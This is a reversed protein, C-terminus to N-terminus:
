GLLGAPGRSRETLGGRSRTSGGGRSIRRRLYSRPSFARPWLHAARSPHSPETTGDAVAAAATAHRVDRSCTKASRIIKILAAIRARVHASTARYPPLSPFLRFPSIIQARFPLLGTGTAVLAKPSPNGNSHRQQSFAVHPRGLRSQRIDNALTQRRWSCILARCQHRHSSSNFSNIVIRRAPLLLHGTSRRPTMFGRPRTWDLGDERRAENTDPFLM